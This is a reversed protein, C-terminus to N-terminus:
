VDELARGRAAHQVVGPDGALDRAEGVVVMLQDERLTVHQAAGLNLGGRTLPAAWV